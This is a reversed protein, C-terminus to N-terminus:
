WGRVLDGILKLRKLWELARKAQALLWFESTPNEPLASALTQMPDAATVAARFLETLFQKTDM